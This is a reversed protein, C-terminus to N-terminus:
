LRGANEVKKPRNDRIPTKIAREANWGRKIRGWLTYYNMKYKEAAEAVTLSEGYIDIFNNTSKNREQTKRDVWRCNTPEYNGANDIRDLTLGEPRIGMDELFKEFSEWRACVKIGKAGYNKYDPRHPQQCRRRMDVWTRYTPTGDM